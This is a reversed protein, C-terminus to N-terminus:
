GALKHIDFSEKVVDTPRKAAPMNGNRTMLSQELAEIDEAKM